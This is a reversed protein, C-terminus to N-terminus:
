RELDAVDRVLEVAGSVAIVVIAARGLWTVPASRWARALWPTARWLGWGAVLLLALVVGLPGLILFVGLPLLALARSRPPRRRALRRELWLSLVMGYTAPIAVFLAVALWLPELM